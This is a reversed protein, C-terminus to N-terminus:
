CEIIYPNKHFVGILSLLLSIIENSNISNYLQLNLYSGNPTSKSLNIGFHYPASFSLFVWLQLSKICGLFMELNTIANPIFYSRKLPINICTLKLFGESDCFPEETWNKMKSRAKFYQLLHTVLQQVQYKKLPRKLAIKLWDNM